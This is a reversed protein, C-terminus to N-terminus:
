AQRLWGPPSTRLSRAPGASQLSTSDGLHCTHRRLSDFRNQRAVYVDVHFTQHYTASLISSGTITFHFYSGM